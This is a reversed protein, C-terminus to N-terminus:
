ALPKSMPYGSSTGFKHAAPGKESYGRDRYFRHATETSELRCMANGREAARKELEALLTTSV